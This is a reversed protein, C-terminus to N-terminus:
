LETGHDPGYDDPGFRDFERRGDFGGGIMGLVAATAIKKLNICLLVFLFLTHPFDQARGTHNAGLSTQLSRNVKKWLCCREYRSLSHLEM